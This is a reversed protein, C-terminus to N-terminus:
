EDAADSTYLLCTNISDTCVDGDLDCPIQYLHQWSGGSVRYFISPSAWQVNTWTLDVGCGPPTVKSNRASGDPAFPSPELSCVNNPVSLNGTPIKAEINVTDLLIIRDGSPYLKLETGSTAVALPQTGTSGTAFQSNTNENWIVPTLPSDTVQWSVDVSCTNLGSGLDLVCFDPSTFDGTPRIVKVVVSSEAEEGQSDIKATILHTGASLSNKLEVETLTGGNGINGDINSEWNVLDELNSPGKIIFGDRSMRSIPNAIASFEPITVVNYTQGDIPANSFSLTATPDWTTWVNVDALFDTTFGNIAGEVRPKPDLAAVLIGFADDQGKRFAPGGSEGRKVVYPAINYTLYNQNLDAIGSIKGEHEVMGEARSPYSVVEIDDGLNFQLNLSIPVYLPSTYPINFRIVGYDYSSFTAPNILWENPVRFNAAVVVGFPSQLNGQDLHAAVAKQVKTYYGCYSNFLAHGATVAANESIYFATAHDFDPCSTNNNLFLLGMNNYPYNFIDAPTITTSTARNQSETVKQQELFVSPDHPIVFETYNEGVRLNVDETGLFSKESISDMAKM